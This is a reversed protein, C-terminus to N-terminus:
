HFTRIDTQKNERRLLAGGGGVGIREMYRESHPLIPWWTWFVEPLQGAVAAATCSINMLLLWRCPVILSPIKLSELLGLISEPDFAAHAYLIYQIYTQRFRRNFHRFNACLLCTCCGTVAAPMWIWIFIISTDTIQFRSPGPVRYILDSQCSCLSCM